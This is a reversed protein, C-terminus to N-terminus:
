VTKVTSDDDILIRPLVGLVSSGFRLTSLWISARIRHNLKEMENINKQTFTRLIRRLRRVKFRKIIEIAM